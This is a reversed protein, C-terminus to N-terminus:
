PQLALGLTKLAAQFDPDDATIPRTAPSSIAARDPREFIAWNTFEDGFRSRYAIGVFLPNGDNDTQRYVYSSVEQTFKRPASQRIAAADLEPIRYHVLRAALSEHLHTLSASERLDAFMGAAPAAEGIARGNLWDRPVAGPPIADPSGSIAELGAIFAPRKRFRSLVEVFCGHLSSGAYLVRYVGEPDDWRNGFTGDSAAYEWAPWAWPDRM